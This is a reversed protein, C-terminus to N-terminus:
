NLRLLKAMQPAFYTLIASAGARRFAIMTEYIAKDEDLVGMAVAAKIMAYEGSVNYAAVPVSSIDKIRAIVDLYPLGPKVMVMDAGEEIDLLTERLAEHTNRPDMQYTKKDGFKPASQLADRFPGYFCSAYKASYALINVDTFNHQDLLKRISGIRGDMMDSPAVWDAGWQAQKLAMQSLIEVSVDNLIKGNEVVGDHGDSSFPDLAVDAIINIEPHDDKLRKITDPLLGNDNLAETGRSDKKSEEIQPFLAYHNLGLNKWETIKKSLLDPTWRSQGPMAKIPTETNNGECVFVPYILNQTLIQTESVLDRIAQNKRNRRPRQIQSM